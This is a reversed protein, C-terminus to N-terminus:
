NSPSSYDNREEKGGGRKRRIISDASKEGGEGKVGIRSSCGRDAKKKRTLLSTPTKERKEGGVPGQHAGDKEARLGTLM